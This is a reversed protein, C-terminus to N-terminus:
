FVWRYGVGARLIARSSLRSIVDAGTEARTVTCSRKGENKSGFVADLSAHVVALADNNIKWLFIEGRGGGADRNGLTLNFRDRDKTEM